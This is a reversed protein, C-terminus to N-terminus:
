EAFLSACHTEAGAFLFPSFTTGGELAAGDALGVRDAYVLGMRWIRGGEARFRALGSRRSEVQKGGWRVGLSVGALGEAARQVKPM